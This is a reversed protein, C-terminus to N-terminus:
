LAGGPAAKIVGFTLDKKILWRRFATSTADARTPMEARPYLPLKRPRQSELIPRDQFFITQQFHILDTDTNEEDFPLVFSHAISVEEEVPQVFLGILDWAAEVTPCTKYLVTLFPTSVRYKYYSMQANEAAKAAMPQEFQCETAWIEDEVEETTVKYPLVATEPENGLYGTHVYPFHALDLFNEVVRLASTRVRVPGCTVLRRNPEDFEPMHLLPKPNDGLTVWVHGYKEQVALTAGTQGTETEEWATMSGDPLRQCGINQGLVKTKLPRRQGVEQFRGIPIWYNLAILDTTKTM